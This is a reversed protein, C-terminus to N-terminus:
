PLAMAIQNDLHCFPVQVCIIGSLKLQCDNRSLYSLLAEYFVGRLAQFFIDQRRHIVPIAQFIRSRQDARRKFFRSDWKFNGLAHNFKAPESLRTAQVFARIANPSYSVRYYM